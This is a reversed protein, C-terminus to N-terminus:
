QDKEEAAKKLDLKALESAELQKGIVDLQETMQGIQATLQEKEAAFKGM